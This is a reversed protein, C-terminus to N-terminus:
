PGDEEGSGEPWEPEVTQELPGSDPLEGDSSEEDPLEGDPPGQDPLEGDSTGEVDDRSELEAQPPVRDILGDRPHPADSGDGAGAGGDSVVAEPAVAVDVALIEETDDDRRDAANAVETVVDRPATIEASPGEVDLVDVVIVTVNDHGGAALALSILSRAADSVDATGLARSVVDDPVESTLGDSCLLFREGIQLPRLWLDADAREDGGLVRTIVNRQPHTRASDATIRGAEVLEQVYSHDVSLQELSGDLYRYARSDGINFVLWSTVDGNDVLVLGVATTGMGSRTASRRGEDLISTNVAELLGVVADIHGVGEAGAARFRDVVLSSAVDGAQHGGMGDAVVFVPPCALASDENVSRENGVDTAVAWGLTVGAITVTGGMPGAHHWIVPHITVQGGGRPGCTVGGDDSGSGFPVTPTTPGGM